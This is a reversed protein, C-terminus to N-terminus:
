MVHPFNKRWNFGRNQHSFRISGGHAVMKERAMDGIFGMSEMTDGIVRVMRMRAKIVMKKEKSGM